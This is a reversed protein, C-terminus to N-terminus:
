NRVVSTRSLFLRLKFNLDSVTRSFPHVGPAVRTSDETDLYSWCDTCNISSKNKSTVPDVLSASAIALVPLFTAATRLLM